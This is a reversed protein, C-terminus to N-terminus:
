DLKDRVLKTAQDILFLPITVQPLDLRALSSQVFERWYGWVHFPCYCLAFDKLEEETFEPADPKPSYEADLTARIVAYTALLGDPLKGGLKFVLTTQTVIREPLASVTPRLFSTAGSLAAEDPMTDVTEFGQVSYASFRVADLQVGKVVKAAAIFPTAPKPTAQTTTPPGPSVPPDPTEAPEPM